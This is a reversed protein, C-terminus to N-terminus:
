PRTGRDHPYNQLWCILYLEGMEGGTHPPQAMQDDTVESADFGQSELDERAVATIPFGGNFGHQQM